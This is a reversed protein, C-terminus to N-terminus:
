FIIEGERLMKSLKWALTGCGEEIRQFTVSYIYGTDGTPDILNTREDFCIENFLHIRGWCAYPLIKQMEVVHFHEICIVLDASEAMEYTIYRSEGKMEYGARHAYSAMMYDRPEGEYNHVGASEVEVETLGKQQLKKRLIVEALASRCINASCVFLIKMSLEEKVRFYLCIIHGRGFFM